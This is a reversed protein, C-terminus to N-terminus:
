AISLKTYIDYLRVSDRFRPKDSPRISNEASRPATTFPSCKSPRAIHDLNDSAQFTITPLRDLGTAGWDDVSEQLLIRRGLAETATGM